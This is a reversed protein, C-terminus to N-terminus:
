VTSFSYAFGVFAAFLFSEQEPNVLRVTVEVVEGRLPRGRLLAAVERQTADPILAFERYPTDQDRLFPAVSRGEYLKWKNEPIQSTMGDPYNANSPVSVVPAYVQRSAEVEVYEFLKLRIPDENSVFTLGAEYQVGYFNCRVSNSHTWLKGDKFTVFLNGIKSYYEPLFSYSGLWRPQIGAMGEQFSRTVGNLTFFYVKHERDIGGIVNGSAEINLIERGIGFGGIDFQGSGQSYRWVVKKFRDYGYAYGEDSVVSAPDRTGLDAQFEDGLNLLEVSRGVIENGSLDLVRGKGVYVPQTKDECVVLLNRGVNVMKRVPGFLRNMRIYNSGRFSSLGSSFSDPIYIDSARIKDYDNREKYGPDFIQARGRDSLSENVYRYLGPRQVGPITIDWYDGSPAGGWLNHTYRTGVHYTDGYRGLDIAPHSSGTIKACPGFEYFISDEIELTPRYIECLYYTDGRVAGENFNPMGVQFKVLVHLVVNDVSDYTQLWYGAIEYNYDLIDAPQPPNFGGASNIRVLQIRDRPEPFFIKDNEQLNDFIIGSNPQDRLFNGNFQFSVYQIASGDAYSMSVFEDETEDYVWFDADWAPQQFYRSQNQNKTIGIRVYEAWDPPDTLFDVELYHRFQSSIGQQTFPVEVRGLKVTGSRGAWDYYMAAVDYVGGSKLTKLASTQLPSTPPNVTAQTITLTAKISPLDYGEVSGGILMISNGREDNVAKIANAYRPVWDYNKLAQIDAEGVDDSPVAPYNGNNLFEEQINDIPKERVDFSLGERWVDNEFYRFCVEVKRIYVRWTADTLFDDNMTLVIKKFLESNDAFTATAGTGVFNTPVYSASSWASKEEDDFVYRYRFQFHFGYVRNSTISSDFSFQPVPECPPQPKIMELQRPDPTRHYYNYPVSVAGGVQYINIRRDNDSDHVATLYPAPNSATNYPFTVTVGEGAAGAVVGAIIVDQTTAPNTYIVTAPLVVDDKADTIELVWEAGPAFSNVGFHVESILLKGLKAKEINIKRPPNGVATNYDSWYFLKGDIIEGATALRNINFDLFDGFMLEHIDTGDYLLIYHKNEFFDAVLYIISDTRKDEFAGICKYQAVGGEFAFSVEQNGKLNELAGVRSGRNGILNLAAVFDSKNLERPDVDTNVGGSFRNISKSRM